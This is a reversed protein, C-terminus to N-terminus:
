ARRREHRTKGPRFTETEPLKGRQESWAGATHSPTGRQRTGAVAVAKASDQRINRTKAM